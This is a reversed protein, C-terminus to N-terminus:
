ELIMRSPRFGLLPFRYDAPIVGRAASRCYWAVSLWSGGRNVRSRSGAVCALDGDGAGPKSYYAQDFGDRCWEWVNGHMDHIGFANPKKVGIPHSRCGWQGLVKRDDWRTGSSLEEHGSNLYFWAYEGLDQEADGFSFSTATGARCAYEWQAETPLSLETKKCFERCDDWSVQEVPLDDGTFQWPSTGMVRHWQVQSVEYKAILFPSLTVKHRPQEAALLKRAGQRRGPPLSALYDRQEKETGGMTFTGGPLRVFVIGSKEHHYESYGQENKQMFTFGSM